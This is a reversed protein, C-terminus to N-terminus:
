MFLMYRRMTQWTNKSLHKQLLWLQILMQRAKRSHYAQRGGTKGFSEKTGMMQKMAYEPQLNYGGTLIKEETKEGSQIYEIVTSLHSKTGTADNIHLIKCIAM